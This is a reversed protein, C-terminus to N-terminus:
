TLWDLLRAAGRYIGRRARPFHTAYSTTLRTLQTSSFDLNARSEAERHHALVEQARTQPLLDMVAERTYQVHHQEDSHVIAVAKAPYDDPSHACADLHFDLSRAIRAELFHLHAFFNALKDTKQDNSDSTSIAFSGNTHGRIVENYVDAMPLEVIPQGLRDIAKRYLAVHKDEDRMHSQMRLLLEPEDIVNEPFYDTVRHPYEEGNLYLNLVLGHLVPDRCIDRHLQRKVAGVIM